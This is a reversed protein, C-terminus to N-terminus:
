SSLSLLLFISLNYITCHFLLRFSPRILPRLIQDCAICRFSDQLWLKCGCIQIFRNRPLGQIQFHSPLLYLLTSIITCLHRQFLTSHFFHNLHMMFIIIQIVGHEVRQSRNLRPSSLLRFQRTSKLLTCLIIHRSLNDLKILVIRPLRILSSIPTNTFILSLLNTVFRERVLRIGFNVDGLYFAAGCFLEVIHDLLGALGVWRVGFVAEL